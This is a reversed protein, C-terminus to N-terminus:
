MRKRYIWGESDTAFEGNAVGPIKLWAATEADLLWGEPSIKVTREPWEAGVKGGGGEEEDADLDDPLVEMAKDYYWRREPDPGGRVGLVTKEFDGDDAYDNLDSWSSMYRWYYGASLWAYPMRTLVEPDSIADVGLAKGVVSHNNRRTIQIYGHGKFRPGDGEQTNGLDQRWEYDWGDAIEEVYYLEGSEKAVNAIFAAYRLKTNIQYERMVRHIYPLEEEIDGAPANPLIAHLHEAKLSTM